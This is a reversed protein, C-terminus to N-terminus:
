ECFANERVLKIKKLNNQRRIYLESKYISLLRGVPVDSSKDHKNEMTKRTLKKTMEKCNKVCHPSM